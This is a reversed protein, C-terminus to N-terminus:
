GTPRARVDYGAHDLLAKLVSMPLVCRTSQIDVGAGETAEIIFDTREIEIDYSCNAGRFRASTTELRWKCDPPM